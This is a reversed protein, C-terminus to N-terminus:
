TDEEKRGRFFMILGIVVPVAIMVGVIGLTLPSLPFAQLMTMISTAWTMLLAVVLVYRIVQGEIGIKDILAAANQIKAPSLVSALGGGIGNSAAVVLSNAGVATSTEVHYKTFMAISSTESGSIFGALLGMFPALVPYLLGLGATMSALLFIMNNTPDLGTALDTPNLWDGGSNMVWGSFNLVEAMAFFIASALVPRLARKKFKIATRKLVDRNTKLFPMSVLTAILMLTYAQWLFRTEIARPYGGITVPFALTTFLFDFVPKILNTALSLIVLIVWPISARSLSFNKEIEFDEEILTSRDIMPKSRVKNFLFLVLIVSAGAFVNTLTTLPLFVNCVIAMLGATLGCISALILGDRSALLKRGGGIWLMSIAIGLSVVPMFWAFVAGAEQINIVSGWASYEAQFVQVPVGLLAYTTLPDYGISPLAVAVMPNFGLALMVPPLMSTPTAGIGVLFLGLGFSILLIQMPRSGGGLTKFFVILRQLAGSEQMFTMMLISTGVMLSIPFSKVIGALSATLAIVVDTQFAFIAIVVTTIWVIVGTVDAAKKLYLLLIFALAIPLIILFFGILYDM